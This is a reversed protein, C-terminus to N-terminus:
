QGSSAGRARVHILIERITYAAVVLVLLWFFVGFMASYNENPTDGANFAVVGWDNVDQIRNIFLSIRAMVTFGFSAGFGIMLTWIGVKAAGGFLGTHAKSFFFYILAAASGVFLIVQSFGATIDLYGHGLFNSWNIEAMAAYLQKNVRNSMELPIALGTSIGIYLAMPWRSIWSYNRSFRTFMLLGLIAPILYYPKSSNLWVYYWDGDALRQFLNPVLGGHWLIITFYGTAVGVVLHEAFKYFPNDKYLFSFTALTVFVAFTTWIFTALDM